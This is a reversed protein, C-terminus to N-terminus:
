SGAHAFTATGSMGPLVLVEEDDLVGFAKITQSVPDVVAGLRAITASVQKGTEDIDFTLRAGPKLWVLWKSPVLTEVELRTTDVIRILPQNAAPSEHEQVIREVMLGDFPAKFDCTGTRAQVASAEALAQNYDAESIRVDNAGIAGRALLKRNNTMKLERARVASRAATADAAYRSCDFAVLIDGRKFAEGELKPLKKVRATYDVAITAETLARVVGRAMPPEEAVSQSSFALAVAVGVSGWVLLKTIHKSM